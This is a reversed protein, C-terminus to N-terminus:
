TIATAEKPKLQQMELEKNISTPTPQRELNVQEM